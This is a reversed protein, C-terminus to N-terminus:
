EALAEAIGMLAIGALVVAIIAYKLRGIREKEFIRLLIVSFISYTAILPAAVIANGAMAYVYFFQGATELLAALARNKQRVIRYKKKKIVTMYFLLVFAVILFTFEYAYLAEDEGILSLEDLYVADAFTGLGDFLCYLLPFVIVLLGKKMEKGGSRLYVRRDERVDLAALCVIGATVVIIGAVTLGDLAQRFFIFCLVAALAGSTNQVPSAISLEIYRIGFYGIMMSIIYFMSVPLYKIMWMPDFGGGSLILTVAAHIGMVIGVAITIQIYSFSDDRETSKKYFLDAGGWCLAAVLAFIFWM